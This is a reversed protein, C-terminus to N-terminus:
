AGREIAQINVNIEKLNIDVSREVALRIVDQVQRAVDPVNLGYDIAVKIEVSVQNDPDITVHVSPYNKRGVLECVKSIVGFSALRVGPVEQLASVAIDGIVKKHIQVFGIDVKNDRSM